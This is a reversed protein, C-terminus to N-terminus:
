LIQQVDDFSYSGLAGVDIVFDTGSRTVATVTGAQLATANVKKGNLTASVSFKYNGDAATKGASNTGDWVFDFTGADHAGLSESQVVNGAADTITLTVADAKSELKVGGVAQGSALQLSSGAVMVAKGILNSAQMAQTEDYASLLKTLTTNLKEIGSVTNIQALQSTVQANDLPNLPDQNKLQTTLMTLFNTAMDKSATATSSKSTSSTGNISSFIDAATNTSNVTAM